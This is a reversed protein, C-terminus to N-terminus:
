ARSRRLRAVYFGDMGGEESWFCPLTRIDGDATVAEPLEPLSISERRFPMESLFRAVRDRGEEPELSCCAYILLGGPAVMGAAARLLRDQLGTAARLDRATRLRLVDPHRRVTGTASCPTDLLVFDFPRAPRWSTADAEIWEAPLSLRDLNARARELRSGSRDVATVEAGAAALQATKGGPAACLDLVRRGRTDGMVRVPLAAAADQVWWDGAAYGPLGSIPGSPRPRLRVSGTPLVRGGLTNPETDPRRLTLDLPPEDLHAAAVEHATREGYARVWGEWLAEPTNLRAADQGALRESGERALRRLVANVLGKMRPGAMAVSTSVAAHAPIGEFLMQSAGLALVARTRGAHRPLPHDLIGSVLADIQGWRRLTTAALRRAFARDGPPADFRGDDFPRGDSLVQALLELALARANVGLPRASATGAVM